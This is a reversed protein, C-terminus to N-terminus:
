RWCLSFLPFSRVSGGIVLGASSVTIGNCPVEVSPLAVGAPLPIDAYRVDCSNELFHREGPGSLFGPIPRLRRSLLQWDQYAASGDVTQGFDSRVTLM